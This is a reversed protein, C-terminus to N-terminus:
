LAHEWFERARAKRAEPTPWDYDSNLQRHVEIEHPFEWSLCRCLLPATLEQRPSELYRATAERQQRRNERAETSRNYSRTGLGYTM